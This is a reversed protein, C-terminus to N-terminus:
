ALQFRDGVDLIQKKLTLRRLANKLAAEDSVVARLEAFTARGQRLRTLIARDRAEVDAVSSVTPAAPPAGNGNVPPKTTAATSAKTGKLTISFRRNMTAGSAEVLGRDIFRNVHYRLNPVTLDVVSALDSPRMSGKDRLVALIRDGLSADPLSRRAPTM